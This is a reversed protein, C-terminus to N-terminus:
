RNFSYAIKYIEDALKCLGDAKENIYDHMDYVAVIGSQAHNLIRERIHHDISLRSMLTRGTRRLDHQTWETIASIQHLKYRANKCSRTHSNSGNYRTPFVYESETMWKQKTSYGEGNRRDELIEIVQDSLPVIHASSSKTSSLTWLDNQIDSWRMSMIEMPRQCTLLGLRFIDRPNPPLFNFFCWLTRLETDTLVRTRPKEAGSPKELWQMPHVSIWGEQLAPKFLVKMFSYLRNANVPATRAFEKLLSNIMAPSVDTVKVHGIRNKINNNWKRHEEEVTSAAKKRSMLKQNELYLEWLDKMTPAAKRDVREEAPDHGEAVAVMLKRSLDRANAIKLDPFTGITHRKRKRNVQYRIFFSKSRSGIRICLPSGKDFYDQRVGIYKISNIAKTTFKLTREM